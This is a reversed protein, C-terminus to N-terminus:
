WSGVQPNRRIPEGANAGKTRAGLLVPRKAFTSGVVGSSAAGSLTMRAVRELADFGRGSAPTVAAAM